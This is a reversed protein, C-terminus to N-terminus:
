RPEAANQKDKAQRRRKKELLEKELTTRAIPEEAEEEEDEDAAKEAESSETDVIEGDGFQEEFSSKGETTPAIPAPVADEKDTTIASGAVPGLQMSLRSLNEGIVKDVAPAMQDIKFRMYGGVTYEFGIITTGKGTAKIAITLTGNAAENQLPGLAGVMRLLKGPQAFVVRMHEVSGNSADKGGPLKECFCGGAQADLYFNGADGSWSHDKSWWKNPALLMKYVEDPSAKVEVKHRVAFGYESQDIVEAQAAPIATLAGISLAMLIATHKSM